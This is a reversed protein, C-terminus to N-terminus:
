WRWHYRRKNERHLAVDDRWDYRNPGRGFIAVRICFASGLLLFLAVGIRGLLTLELPRPFLDFAFKVSGILFLISGAFGVLRRLFLWVNAAATESASPPASRRSYFFWSIGILVALFTFVFIAKSNIGGAEAIAILAGFMLLLLATRGNM